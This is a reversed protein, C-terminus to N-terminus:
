SKKNQTKPLRNPNDSRRSQLPESKRPDVTYDDVDSHLADDIKHYLRTVHSKYAKWSAQLRTLDDAM